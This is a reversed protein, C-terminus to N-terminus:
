LRGTIWHNLCLKLIIPSYSLSNGFQVIKIFLDSWFPSSMHNIDFFLSDHLYKLYKVQASEYMSDYPTM